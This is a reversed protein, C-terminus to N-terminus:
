IKNSRRSRDKLNTLSARYVKSMKKLSTLKILYSNKRFKGNRLLKDLIKRLGRM